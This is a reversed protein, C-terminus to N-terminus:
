MKIFRMSNIQNDSSLRITYSGSALRSLDIGKTAMETGTVKGSWVSQGYENYVVVQIMSKSSEMGTIYVAGTTPNPSLAIDHNATLIVQRIPSYNVTGNQDVIRLKYYNAGPAPNADILQYKDGRVALASGIPSFDKANTSREVIYEKVDVENTVKWKLLVEQKNTATATFDTLTVPLPTNGTHIFFGSFSSTTVQLWRVDTGITGSSSQTLLTNNNGTPFAKCDVTPDHTVNLNSLTSAGADVGALADQESKLFYFRLDFNGSETNKLAFNRDLYYKGAGDQRVGGSNINVREGDYNTVNGGTGTKRAQMILRGDTALINAWGTFNLNGGAPSQPISACTGTALMADTLEDVALCFTGSGTGSSWKDVQIYYTAGSTLGTAYAISAYILTAGGDEDGSIVTFKTWDNVDTTSYIAIRTDTLTGGVSYDTSVRVAGSAPAVFSYWVTAYNASAVGIPEGGAVTANVNTYIPTSCGAGLTVATAGSPEDNAPPTGLTTFTSSAASWYTGDCPAAPKVKFQYSTLLSLGTVTYPKTVNTYTATGTWSYPSPQIEIDWATAYGNETWNLVATTSTINSASLGTPVACAPPVKLCIDVTTTVGTSYTYVRMIYTNGGTLGTITGSEPDYCGISTGGCADFIQLVRDTSGSINTNTYLLKNYGSPVTFTYWVDDDETGTCTADPSGTAGVTTATVTACTEDVPISPFAIAGTCEDNAPPTVTLVGSVYTSGDWFGGGGSSYGGYKYPGGNLQWRSAYYYTGVALSSGIAALYEDNNGVDVNYTAPTWTWGGGSPDTNASSTGVWVTIGAGQGGSNTVGPEYGRTYVTLSGGAPISGTGPYQLNCWDMADTPALTVSIDDLSIYYPTVNITGKIGIYYTGSASPTFVGAVEQYNGNVIGQANVVTNTMGADSPSSGYALTISANASTAGDQRAYVSFKYATGGSLTVPYFLWDTNSYLLYANFSGTRPTRNYDTKTSNATWVDAGAMSQQTWCGGVATQDNYGSEFGETFPISAPDCATKFSTGAVWTSFESGSCKSRVWWYYTTNATLGTINVSTGSEFTGSGGPPTNTTSYYYEYGLGPAPNPATWGLTASNNTINSTNLATPELCTPGLAVSFDDFGIYYPTSNSSVRVGFYYTGSSAPTFIFKKETYSTSSTTGSTIISGLVTAGSSTQATNWVADATWGSFGDGVFNIKFEYATGGTLSFGPTYLYSATTNGYTMTIYNPSSKPDNYSIAAAQNSNFPKTGPAHGFCTPMQGESYSDFNETWPISVLSCTAPTYTFTQGSSPICSPATTTFRVNYAYTTQSTLPGFGTGDWSPTADPYSTNLRRANFDQATVGRLGVQPIQSTSTGVTFSGYVLNIVGTTNNIRIQFSFQETAAQATRAFDKWQFVTEGADIKWSLEPASGSVTSSVLNMALGAIIGSAANTSAIPQTSNTFSSVGLAIYGDSGVVVQTITAGNFPFSLGTVNYTTLDYPAAGLVTPSSLATYTGNSQSFTYKTSVQADTENIGFLSLFVCM